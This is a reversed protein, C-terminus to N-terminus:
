VLLLENDDTPGVRFSRPRIEPREQEAVVGAVTLENIGAAYARSHWDLHEGTQPAAQIRERALCRRKADRRGAARAKAGRENQRANMPDLGLQNGLDGIQGPGIFGREAPTL